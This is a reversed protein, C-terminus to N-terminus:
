RVFTVSCLVYDCSKSYCYNVFCRRNPCVGRTRLVSCSSSHRMSMLPPCRVRATEAGRANSLSKPPAARVTDTDSGDDWLAVTIITVVLFLLAVVGVREIQQM